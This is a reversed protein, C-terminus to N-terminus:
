YIKKYAFQYFKMLSILSCSILLDLFDAFELQLRCNHKFNLYFIPKFINLILFIDFVLNLIAM